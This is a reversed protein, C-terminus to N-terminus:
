EVKGQNPGSPCTVVVDWPSVVVYKNWSEPTPFFLFLFYLNLEELSIRSIQM